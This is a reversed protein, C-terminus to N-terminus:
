DLKVSTPLEGQPHRFFADDVISSALEFYGLPWGHEQETKGAVDQKPQVVVLVEHETNPKDLPIHLSLSGDHESKKIMRITQMAEGGAVSWRM